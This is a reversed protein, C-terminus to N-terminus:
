LKFSYQLPDQDPNINKILAIEYALIQFPLIALLSSFSELKPLEFFEDIFDPNLSSYCDTLVITHSGRLKIESLTLEM